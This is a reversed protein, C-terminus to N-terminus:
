ISQKCIKTIEKICNSNIYIDYYVINYRCFICYQVKDWQFTCINQKVILLINKFSLLYWNQIYGRSHAYQFYNIGESHMNLSSSCFRSGYCYLTVKSCCSVKNSGDSWQGFNEMIEILSQCFEPTVVPFWYVDPCPQVFMISNNLYILVCCM